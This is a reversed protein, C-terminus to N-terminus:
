EFLFIQVVGHTLIACHTYLILQLSSSQAIQALNKGPIFSKKKVVKLAATPGV